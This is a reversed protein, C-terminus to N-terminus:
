PADASRDAASGGALTQLIPVLEAAFDGKSVFAEAGHLRAQARYAANDHLSLFVIRPPCPGTKLARATEFGDMGPMAIDLLVLNPRLSEVAALAENGDHAQGVVEVGPLTGLFQQVAKLFSRNDDVLLIKLTM